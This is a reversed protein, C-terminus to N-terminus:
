RTEKLVVAVVVGALVLGFLVLSYWGAAVLVAIALIALRINNADRLTFRRQWFGKAMAATHWSFGVPTM